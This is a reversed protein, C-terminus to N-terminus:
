ATLKVQFDGTTKSILNAYDTTVYGNAEDTNLFDAKAIEITVDDTASGDQAGVVVATLKDGASAAMLDSLSTTLESGVDLVAFTDVSTDATAVAIHAADLDTVVAHYADGNANMFKDLL